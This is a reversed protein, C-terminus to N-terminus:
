DASAGTTTTPRYKQVLARMEKLTGGLDKRAQQLTQRQDKAKQLLQDFAAQDTPTMKTRAQAWRQKIQELQQLLKAKRLGPAQAAPTTDGTVGATTATVLQAPVATSDNSGPGALAVAGVAGAALIIAVAMPIVVWRPKWISRM